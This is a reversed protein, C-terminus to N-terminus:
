LGNGIELHEKLTLNRYVMPTEPGAIKQSLGNTSKRLDLWGSSKELFPEMLGMIHSQRLKGPVM